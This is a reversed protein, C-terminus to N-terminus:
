KTFKEFIPKIIAMYDIKLPLASSLLIIIFSLLSFTLYIFPNLPPLLALSIIRVIVIVFLSHIIYLGIKKFPILKTIQIQFIRSIFIFAVGIKLINLSVSLIAISFPSNFITVTLYGLGWAALAIYMHLKSYFKTKGMAFLLPAFIIINFFNQFINIQFYKVSNSYKNSYLITIIDKSYFLFFIVMPYIIMASKNLVNKWTLVFEEIDINEHFMKSFIPLLITATAGTIMIVFPIEIFGNSFEAFIEAGFYRSIYFQDAAKIATGWLSATLLPLSYSFIEKLKLNSKEAKFEAFPIRKLYIALILSLLSAINWGYLAYIYSKDFLLVPVLICILTVIRTSVTFITIYITKKYTAFIGEIGLTPLLLMPIPAFIKLGLSLEPNKLVQAILGSFSFLFISFFVGGIFLIKTVKLVIDKGEQITYRPLFYSFVSPLGASFIVLLTSYVYVIQRYSGYDVKSLHRSLIAVSVISLALSSFTSLAVWFAQITNNKQM